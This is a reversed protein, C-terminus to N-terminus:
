PPGDDDDEMSFEFGQRAAEARFADRAAKLRSKVTGVPIGLLEAV